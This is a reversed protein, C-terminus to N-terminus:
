FEEDDKVYRDGAMVAAYEIVSAAVSEWDVVEGLPVDFRRRRDAVLSFPLLGEPRASVGRVEWLQRTRQRQRRLGVYSQVRTVVHVGQVDLDLRLRRLYPSIVEAPPFVLAVVLEPLWKHLELTLWEAREVIVEPEAFPSAFAGSEILLVEPVRVM